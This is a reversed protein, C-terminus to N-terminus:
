FRRGMRIGLSVHPKWYDNEHEWANGILEFINDRPGGLRGYPYTGKANYATHVYRAGLGFFIDIFYKEGCVIEEGWKIATFFVPSKIRANSYGIASDKFYWGSDRDDFNRQIYGVQWSFYRTSTRKSYCKLESALKFSQRKQYQGRQRNGWAVGAETLLSHRKGWQFQFGPQLGIDYPFVVASITAAYEQKSDGKKQSKQALSFNTSLVCLSFFVTKTLSECM